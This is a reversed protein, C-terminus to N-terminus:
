KYLPSTQLRKIAQKTDSELNGKGRPRVHFQFSAIGETGCYDVAVDRKAKDHFTVGQRELGGLQPPFQMGSAEHAFTASSDVDVHVPGSQCLFVFLGLVCFLPLSM